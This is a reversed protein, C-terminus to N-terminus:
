IDGDVLSFAALHRHMGGALFHPLVFTTPPTMSFMAQLM